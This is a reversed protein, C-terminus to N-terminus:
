GLDLRIEIPNLTYTDGSVFAHIDVNKVYYIYNTSIGRIAYGYITQASTISFELGDGYKYPIYVVVSTGVSVSPTSFLSSQLKVKQLGCAATVETLDSNTCSPSPTYNNSFFFLEFEEMASTGHFNNYLINGAGEICWSQGKAM